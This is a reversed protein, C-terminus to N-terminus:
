NMDEAKAPLPDPRFCLLEIQNTIFAEIPSKPDIIALKAAAQGLIGDREEPQAQRLQLQTVDSLTQLALVKDLSPAGIGLAESSIGTPPTFSM